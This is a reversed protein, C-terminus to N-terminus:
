AELGGPTPASGDADLDLIRDSFALLDDVDRRIMDEVIALDLAGYRHVALNRFHTMAELRVSLPADVLGAHRLLAFSERASGPLGLRYRRVFHNALDLALECARLVNLVAADQRTFDAAFADGAAAHEARARGVCRRLSDVKAEVVASM